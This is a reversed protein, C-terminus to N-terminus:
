WTLQGGVTVGVTKKSIGRGVGGHITLRSGKGATDRGVVGAVSLGLADAGEFNGYGLRIGFNEDAVFDPMKLALAMAVGETNEDIQRQQKQNDDQLASINSSNSSINATNSGINNANTDATQQAQDASFQAVEASTQAAEIDVACQATNGSACDQALASHSAVVTTFVMVLLVAVQMGGKLIKMPYGMLATQIAKSRETVVRPFTEALAVFTGARRVNELGHSSEHVCRGVLWPM